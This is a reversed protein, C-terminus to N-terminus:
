VFVFILQLMDNNNSNNQTTVGHLTTTPYWRKLHPHLCCSGRFLQYGAVVSHPTVVWFIQAEIKGTM